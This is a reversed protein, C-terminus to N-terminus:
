RLVTRYWPAADRLGEAFGTAPEVPGLARAIRTSDFCHDESILYLRHASSATRGGGVGLARVLLRAVDYPLSVRPRRIGLECVLADVLARLTLPREDNVHFLKGRTARVADDAAAVFSAIRSAVQEVNVVSLRARGHNVLVPLRRLARALRPIFHTDGAGYTFLTRFVTGGQALVRSEAQARSQSVPTAPATIAQDETADHQPAYGCVASNSLYLVREIGSRRAAALVNETGVVNVRQCEAEDDSVVSALHVVCRAGDFARRLSGSDTVDVSHEDDSVGDIRRHGRHVLARVAIGRSRLARVAHTGVFGSAGTVVVTM